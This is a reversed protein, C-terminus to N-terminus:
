GHYILEKYTQIAAEYDAGLRKPLVDFREKQDAELIALFVEDTEFLQNTTLEFAFCGESNQIGIMSLPGIKGNTRPLEFVSYPTVFQSTGQFASALQFLVPYLTLQAVPALPDMQLLQRERLQCVNLDFTSSLSIQKGYDAFIGDSCIFLRHSVSMGALTAYDLIGIHHAPNSVVSTEHWQEMTAQLAEREFTALREKIPFPLTDSFALLVPTRSMLEIVPLDHRTSQDIYLLSNITMQDFLSPEISDLLATHEVYVHRLPQPQRTATDPYVGTFLSMMADQLEIPQEHIMSADLPVQRGELFYPDGFLVDGRENVLHFQVHLMRQQLYAVLRLTREGPGRLIFLYHEFEQFDMYDLLDLFTHQDYDYRDMSFRHQECFQVLADTPDLQHLWGESESLITLGIM